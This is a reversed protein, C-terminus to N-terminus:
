IARPEQVIELGPPGEAHIIRDGDVEITVDGGMLPIGELHFRGIWDPVALALHLRSNRTDPEFRLMSRLLLLPSAAAWAQPSCSTPYAVPFAYQASSFGGFLEPLRNGFHAASAVIGEMVRHAEEILGYRMLGAACLANDHPWISGNHYSVPNFRSMGAGLTRVGWGTFMDDGLLAKAVLPAREADIIGTWLCHGINSVLADIPEKNRDLGFAYRGHEELWFDRNFRAKLDAAKERLQTALADDGHETAFHSRATLAAYVYGQVECLAIPTEALRGDAFHMSDWSDKWGQNKLGRDSTRQYEVYGDGDRDGYTEIWELARDAAPLLADVEDRRTGWRQLEGLLMVFLPTADVSGYYVSGGGLSLQASEGFRMEHLIRGPEEETVADVKTGQFRALTQLTGLALDPAVMMAMWSTILSDRGFVTMFWPAGAAVMTRDPYEPDFIRLGALDEASRRYLHGFEDHEATLKPLSRRWSELRTSPAAREVPQGCPYRPEIEHGNIIATIQMCVSWSEGPPVIVEFTVKGGLQPPQSFEVRTARHFSGRVYTYTIQGDHEDVALEGVKQVRGEKVEFLDAFDCEIDLEIGCFAPEAGYNHVEIDDRMGRGIYRQRTVVLHSDARGPQPAAQLVFIASFPDVLHSALPEPASGNIRLRLEALFRTDRFFLGHPHASHMDGSSDSICFASGEVLTVAGGDLQAVSGGTWPTPAVATM